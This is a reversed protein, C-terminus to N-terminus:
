YPEYRVKRPEQSSRRSLHQTLQRMSEDRLVRWEATKAEDKALLHIAAQYAIVHHFSSLKEYLADDAASSLDLLNPVYSIKFTLDSAPAPAFYLLEGDQYYMAPFSSNTALNLGNVNKFKDAEVNREPAVPVYESGVLVEVKTILYIGALNVTEGSYDYYGTAAVFTLASSKVTFLSQAQKVCERYFWQSAINICSDLQATSFLGSSAQDEFTINKVLDRLESLLM